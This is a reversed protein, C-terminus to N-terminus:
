AAARTVKRNSAEVHEVLVTPLNPPVEELLEDRVAADNREVLVPAERADPFIRPDLFGFGVDPGVPQERHESLDSHGDILEDHDATTETDVADAVLAQGLAGLRDGLREVLVLAVSVEPLERSLLPHADRALFAGHRVRVPGLLGRHALLGPCTFLPEELAAVRHEALRKGVLRLLRDKRIQVVRRELP